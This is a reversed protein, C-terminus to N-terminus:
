KNKDIEANIDSTAESFSTGPTVAAIREVPVRDTLSPRRKRHYLVDADAVPSTEASNFVPAVGLPSMKLKQLDAYSSNRSRSKPVSLTHHGPILGVVEDYDGSEEQDSEDPTGVRSSDYGAWASTGRSSSRSWGFLREDIWTM